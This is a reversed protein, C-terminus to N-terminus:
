ENRDDRVGRVIAALPVEAKFPLQRNIARVEHIGFHGEQQRDHDVVCTIIVFPHRLPKPLHL